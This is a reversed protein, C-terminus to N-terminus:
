RVLMRTIWGSWRPSGARGRGSLVSAFHRTPEEGEREAEGGGRRQRHRRGPETRLVCPGHLELGVLQRVPEGHDEALVVGRLHDRDIDPVVDARRVLAGRAGPERVQELVHHELARRVHLLALVELEDLARAAAHVARGGVVAGVVELRKRRVPEVEAEPELGVAHARERHRLLVEVVLALRHLFLAAHADVVLGVERREDVLRRRQEVGRRAEGVRVGADAGHGVQVRRLDVVHLREELAVVRGVVGREGEDAVEIGGLCSMWCYKPSM